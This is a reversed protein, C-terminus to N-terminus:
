GDIRAKKVLFPREIVRYTIASLAVTALAAGAMVVVTLPTWGQLAVPRKAHVANVAGILVPFHILYISYSLVGLVVLVRNCLLPKVRCPAVLLLLWWVTSYPELPTFWGHLANLFLLYPVGRLLDAATRASLVTGLCVATWNLPLIRLARRRLYDSVSTGRRGDTEALFPLALLFASLVFFLTVATHGARLYALPM